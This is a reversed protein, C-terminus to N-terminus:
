FKQIRDELKYGMIQLYDMIKDKFALTNSSTFYHDSCKYTWIALM